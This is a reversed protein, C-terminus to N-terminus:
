WNGASKFLFSSSCFGQCKTKLAYLTFLYQHLGHGAPSVKQWQLWAM